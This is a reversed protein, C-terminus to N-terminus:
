RYASPTPISAYFANPDPKRGPAPVAPPPEEPEREARDAAGPTSAPAAAPRGPVSPPVAAVEPQLLWTGAEDRCGRGTFVIPAGSDQDFIKRYDRCLRNAGITEERDIVIAGRNGTEANVWVERVGVRQTQLRDILVDRLYVHDRFDEEGVAATAVGLLGILLPLVAKNM